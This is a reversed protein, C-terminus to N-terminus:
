LEEKLESVAVTSIDCVPPWALVNDLVELPNGANIKKTKISGRYVTM